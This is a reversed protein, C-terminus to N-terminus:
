NDVHMHPGTKYLSGRVYENYPRLGAQRCLSELEYSERSSLPVVVFDVARGTYHNPDQHRGDMTSTVIFERHPWRGKVLEKLDHMKVATSATMSRGGFTVIRNPSAMARELYPNSPLPQLAKSADGIRIEEPKM